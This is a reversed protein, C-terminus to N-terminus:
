SKRVIFHHLPGESRTELLANGTQDQWRAMEIEATPDDSVVHAVTGRPSKDLLENLKVLVASCETGIEYMTEDPFEAFCHVRMSTLKEEIAPAARELSVLKSEDGARELLVLWGEDFPGRNIMRPHELAKKNVERIICEFPARIVDFHRPGEVSGLVSGLAVRTGTPKLSVSTFGASLWSLLPTVGVRWFRGEARGWTGHEPDYLLGDRYECDGM